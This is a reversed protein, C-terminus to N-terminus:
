GNKFFNIINQAAESELAMRVEKAYSGIHPTLITNKLTCLKGNYPENKFVDLGASSNPNKLLFNYLDEENFIEGRSTNIIIIEDKCFNLKKDDILGESSSTLNLHFSLIDSESLVEDIEKYIINYKKAFSFDKVKDYALYKLDLGRSIKVLEKGISGLGIIGLTKNRLLIGMQKKWLNKKLNQNNTHINKALSVMLSLTLEAVASTLSTKTKFISINKKKAYNLDINDLGIGVRSIIKLFPLQNLIEKSYLETGAIIGECDKAFKIL